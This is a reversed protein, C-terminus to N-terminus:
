SQDMSNGEMDHIEEQEISNIVASPSANDLRQLYAQTDFLSDFTKLRAYTAFKPLLGEIAFSIQVTPSISSSTSKFVNRLKLLYDSVSEGEQQKIKAARSLSFECLRDDNKAFMDLFGHVYSKLCIEAM